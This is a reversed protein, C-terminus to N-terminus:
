NPIPSGPRPPSAVALTHRATPDTQDSSDSTYNSRSPLSSPIPQEPFEPRGELLVDPRNAPLDSPEPTMEEISPSFAPVTPPQPPPSPPSSPEPKLKDKALELIITRLIAETEAHDDSAEREEKRTRDRQLSTLQAFARSMQRDLHVEYRTLRELFDLSPLAYMARGAPNDHAIIISKQEYAMHGTEATIIRRQRWTSIAITEVCMEEIPGVPHLDDVLSQLLAAFDAPDEGLVKFQVDLYAQARLGHKLPNQSSRAKGEPTRPGTSRQANRRNAEIKAESPM